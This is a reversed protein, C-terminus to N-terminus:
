NTPMIKLLKQLEQIQNDLIIIDEPKADKKKLTLRYILVNVYNAVYNNTNIENRTALSDSIKKWETIEEIRYKIQKQLKIFKYQLKSLNIKTERLDFEKITKKDSDTEAQYSTQIKILTLELKEINLQLLELDYIDNLLQDAHVEAEIKCQWYKSEPTPFSSDSLVGFLKVPLPRYMPVKYYNDLIFNKNNELNEMDQKTLISKSSLSELISCNKFPTLETQNM